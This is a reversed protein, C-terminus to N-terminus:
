SLVVVSLTERGVRGHSSIIQGYLFLPSDSVNSQGWHRVRDSDQEHKGREGWRRCSTPRARAEGGSVEMAAGEGGSAEVFKWERQQRWNARAPPV